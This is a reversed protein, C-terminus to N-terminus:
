GGACCLLLLLLLLLRDARACLSRVKLSPCQEVVAGVSRCAYMNMLFHM